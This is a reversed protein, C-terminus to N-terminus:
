RNEANRLNPVVNSPKTETAKILCQGFCIYFL